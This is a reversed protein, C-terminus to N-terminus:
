KKVEFTVYSLKYKRVIHNEDPTGVGVPYFEIKDLGHTNITDQLLKGYKNAKLKFSIIFKGDEIRAGVSEAMAHETWAEFPMKKKLRREVPSVEEIDYKAKGTMIELLIEEALSQPYINGGSKTAEDVKTPKDLIMVVADVITPESRKKEAM